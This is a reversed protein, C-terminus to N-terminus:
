KAADKLYMYEPFYDLWVATQGTPDAQGYRNKVPAIAMSGISPAAITLVLSPIQAIKGHLARRPPCPNGDFGESTHHLVLVAAGSDRAFWKLERMLARLSSFEDGQEHSVDVANDIVLLEPDAGHLERYVALEDELDALSPSSDFMWKIHGTTEKLRDAAWQPYQQMAQEIEFQSREEVMALSRLAMTSEHSDMSAYLTPVQSKIAVALALTSKGAGPPGAIMSVEGKRFTIHANNLTQFPVPIVATQNERNAIARHLHRM